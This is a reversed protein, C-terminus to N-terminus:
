RADGQVLNPSRQTTTVGWCVVKVKAIAWFHAMASSIPGLCAVAVARHPFSIYPFSSTHAASEEMLTSHFGGLFTPM